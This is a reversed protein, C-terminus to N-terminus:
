PRDLEAQYRGPTQGVVSTFADIFSTPNSWGCEVATATVSWGNTLHLLAHHVRLITRWRHFSMGFETHFLRSLTRESAGVTRGLEGLTAPRAPDAYLLDTVARLRDDRPEPLHLPQEPAEVLEDLVVARLREYAGRRTERRDTLALIAERLLSSVAFVSPQRALECCLEVPVVVIRVDTRGYFRHSHAFGPPTWTVRNAPAVWTGRETTTALAGFAPYVLQGETHRHVGIHVGDTLWGTSHPAGAPYTPPVVPQRTEPM